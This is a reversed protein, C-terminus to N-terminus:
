YMKIIGIFSSIDFDYSHAKIGIKATAVSLNSQNSVTPSTAERAVGHGFGDSAARLLLWIMHHRFHEFKDNTTESNSFYLVSLFEM